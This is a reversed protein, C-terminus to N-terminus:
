SKASSISARKAAMSPISVPRGGPCLQLLLDHITERGLHSLEHPRSGRCPTPPDLLAALVRDPRSLSKGLDGRGVADADAQLGGGSPILLSEERLELLYAVVQGGAAGRGHVEEPGQIAHGTQGLGFPNGVAVVGDRDPFSGPFAELVQDAFRALIRNTLGSIANQEHIVLRRRTLWAALGAPGTVFGGM